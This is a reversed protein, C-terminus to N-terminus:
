PTVGLAHVAYWATFALLGALSADGGNGIARGEADLVEAALGNDLPASRLWALAAGADPGVLRACQRALSVSAGDPPIAKVTRRYASDQRNLTEYLPLWLVSGVNDDARDIAGKLDAAAVLTAKGDRDASLHRLIAARVASPDEVKKATEADLTRRLVDLALAAVANGHLTFPQPARAGSPYVETAYLPIEPHRRVALDDAAAYLTDALVPDEVVQTDGTERIYREVAWAFSGVGEISFGPEFLSGDLYHVGRGPANGHVECARLILERALPADALQVAPVTWTLADWDRVTMGRGNWPARSRVMYFRADDIARGTGYFYAFLLNRNVLRDIAESGTTQELSRLGDRTATLLSQWGRRRMALVTAAAGDREPAAAIYFAAHVTTGSRAVAECRLVFRPAPGGGDIAVVPQRASEGEAGEGMQDAAVALAAASALDVGDLLVAGGPGAAVRHRDTCPRAVRVRQQRHGLMGELAIQVQADSESRNELSVVYVAGPMDADRGVPAFVTGRVVYAGQGVMATFTPLWGLVQEWRLEAGALPQEVGNVRVVPRLLPAGQGETFDPGGAFEM